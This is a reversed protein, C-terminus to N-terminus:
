LKNQIKQNRQFLIENIKFSNEQTWELTIQSHDMWLQLEKAELQEQKSFVTYQLFIRLQFLFRFLKRIIFIKQFPTKLKLLYIKIIIIQPSLKIRQILGM